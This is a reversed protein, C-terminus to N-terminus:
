CGTFSYIKNGVQVTKFKVASNIINLTLCNPDSKNYFLQANILSSQCRGTMKVVRAIAKGAVGNTKSPTVCQTVINGPIKYVIGNVDTVSVLEGAPFYATQQVCEIVCESCERGKVIVTTQIACKTNAAVLILDHTNSDFTYGYYDKQSVPPTQISDIYWNYTVPESLSTKVRFIHVDGLCGEDNRSSGLPIDDVYLAIQDTEQCRSGRVNRM